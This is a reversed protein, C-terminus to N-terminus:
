GKMDDGDGRQGARRGCCQKNILAVALAGRACSLLAPKDSEEAGYSQRGLAASSESCSMMQLRLPDAMKGGPVAWQVKVISRM